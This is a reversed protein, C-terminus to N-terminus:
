HFDKESIFMIFSFLFTLVTSLFSATLNSSVRSLSLLRNSLDGPTFEKAFTTPLLLLRSMMATQVAYEVKDKIRVVVLTRAVQVMTMGVAASFLLTAIPIIQVADGSPIVESFILKCVYPTFMTLLIVGVCAMLTYFVDYGCLRRAAYRMVSSVTLRGDGFPYCLTMAENKLLSANQGVTLTKGTRPHLFTYDSFGPVLLVPTDDNAMFGIMKGTCRTWWRETLTIHRFFINKSELFAEIQETSPPLELAAVLQKWLKRDILACLIDRTKSMAQRDGDMRHVLQQLFPNNTM